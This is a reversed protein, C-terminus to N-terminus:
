EKQRRMALLWRDDRRRRIIRPARRWNGPWLTVECWNEVPGTWDPQGMRALSASRSGTGEFGEGHWREAAARTQDKGVGMPYEAVFGAAHIGGATCVDVVEGQWSLEVLQPRAAPQLDAIVVGAMRLIDFAVARAVRESGCCYLAEFSASNWRRDAARRSFSTDLPNAWGARVVRYLARQWALLRPTTM